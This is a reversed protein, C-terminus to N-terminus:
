HLNAALIISTTGSFGTPNLTASDKIHTLLDKSGDLRSSTLIACLTEIQKSTFEVISTNEVSKVDTPQGYTATDLNAKLPATPSLSELLHLESYYASLARSFWGLTAVPVRGQAVELVKKSDLGKLHKFKLNYPHTLEIDLVKTKSLVYDFINELSSNSLSERLLSEPHGYPRVRFPM